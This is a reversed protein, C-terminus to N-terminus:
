LVEFLGFSSAAVSVLLIKFTASVNNVVSCTAGVCNGRTSM